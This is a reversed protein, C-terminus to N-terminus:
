KVKSHKPKEVPSFPLSVLSEAGCGHPTSVFPTSVFPAFTSVASVLMWTIAMMLWLSFCNVNNEYTM